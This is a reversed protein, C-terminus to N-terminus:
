LSKTERKHSDRTLVDDNKLDLQMIVSYQKSIQHLGCPLKILNGLPTTENIEIQKPFIEYKLYKPYYRNIRSIIIQKAFRAEIRNEFIIWVHFGRRGSFELVRRYEPFISYIDQAEKYLNLLNTGDLDVCVWKIKNDLGICYIGLTKLGKLHKDLDFPTLTRRIPIYIGSSKQEAFIDDRNIFYKNLEGISFRHNTEM